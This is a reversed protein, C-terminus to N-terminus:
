VHARGIKKTRSGLIDRPGLGSKWLVLPNQVSGCSLIFKDGRVVSSGKGQEYVVGTVKRGELLLQKAMANPIIEVGHQEAAPIHTLLTSMKADYKCMNGTFCYGCFICNKKAGEFPHVDYGLSRAANRLRKQGESLADEPDPHLNFVRHVEEAAAKMNQETWDVGTTYNWNAYDAPFPVNSQGGFSVSSGGLIRTGGPIVYRTSTYADFEQHINTFMRRRVPVGYGPRAAGKYYPGAELLAIRLKEKTRPHVGHEAIRAALICGATGGGVIVLDYTKEAPM